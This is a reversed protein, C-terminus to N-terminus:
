QHAETDYNDLAALRLERTTKVSFTVDFLHDFM